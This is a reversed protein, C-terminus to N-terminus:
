EGLDIDNSMIRRMVEEKCYTYIHYNRIYSFEILKMEDFVVVVTKPNFIRHANYIIGENKAICYKIFDIPTLRIKMTRNGTIPM